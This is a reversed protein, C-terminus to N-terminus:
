IKLGTRLKKYLKYKMSTNNLKTYKQFNATPNTLTPTLQKHKKTLVKSNAYFFIQFVM